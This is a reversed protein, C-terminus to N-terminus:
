RLQLDTWGLPQAIFVTDCAQAPYAFDFAPKGQSDVGVLRASTRANLASYAVVYNGPSAEYVSSCIDSFLRREAEYTWVERATGAKEDIAYRSPMSHTRTAGRPAAPPQNLSGL